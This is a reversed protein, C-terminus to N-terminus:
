RAPEPANLAPLLCWAPDQDEALFCDIVLPILPLVVAFRSNHSLSTFAARLSAQNVIM